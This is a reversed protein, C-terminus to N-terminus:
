REDEASFDSWAVEFFETFKDDMFVDIERELKIKWQEEDINIKKLKIKESNWSENNICWDTNWAINKM